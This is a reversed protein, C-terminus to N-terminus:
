RHTLPRKPAHFGLSAYGRVRESYMNALVPVEVDVYDHVVVGTKSPTPRLIRGVYQVISGKFKVPFALFVTDLAPCDFGEGLFSATAVLVTGTQGPQALQEVIARRAKKGMGGQLVLPALGREALGAVLSDLHETWRTLVLSNREERASTAVDDCISKTREANAVLGRFIEQIHEGAPATHSTSHVVVERSLLQTGSPEPMRHRIPGCYMAMMAQLGDRRYPTATLGVWRQAPIQRVAREFTVAPVHHCEDVVVLGYRETAEEVDDRRALSQVMVLDVVGSARRNAALQGVCRKELGLHTMLRERWQELLPQRDVIVLTPVQHHAILACATVTKGAGPPGVLVGLDHAALTEAAIQQDPRLDAKLQFEASDTAPYLETVELRSGAELAIAEAQSRVGRPLLLQDFTERYSRIYRPTGGTWFRNKEKEYFEPNHLSAAHKLAALLAPPLGIRDVAFMASASARISTPPSPSHLSMASRRYTRVGPGVPVDGLSEALATAAQQSLRGVSALFEWQDPYAELSSPDLFVTTGKKRCEGQLPLAILNGFGQRPLFDQSPFLRDYTVLDLEARATMAERVLYAGIRRASGAPVRDSFFVWVHGGDGSRSRELSAPIGATRAADLYALADLTWGPGDFDCALLYCSDDSLLPYLGTTIKGALHDATVTDTLPLLEGDPKRSSAWGEKLAPGWGAKGTRKNEWRLAYTDDRGQFLARFLEVKRAPSSRQTVDSGVTPVAPPFLTPEWVSVPAARDARGLGLLERLRRNEAELDAVRRALDDPRLEESSDSMPHIKAPTADSRVGRETIQHDKAGHHDARADMAEFDAGCLGLRSAPDPEPLGM